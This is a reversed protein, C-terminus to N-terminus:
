LAKRIHRYSERIEALLLKAAERVDGLSERSASGLARLKGELHEWDKEAKEFRRQAEMKGLHVQVKLDDRLARLEEVEAQFKDSLKASRESM